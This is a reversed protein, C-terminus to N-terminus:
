SLQVQLKLKIKSCAIGAVNADNGAVGGVQGVDLVVQGLLFHCLIKISMKGGTVSFNVSEVNGSDVRDVKHELM